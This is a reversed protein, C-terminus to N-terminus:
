SHSSNSVCLFWSVLCCLFWPALRQHTEGVGDRGVGVRRVTEGVRDNFEIWQDNSKPFVGLLCQVLLHRRFLLPAPELLTSINM